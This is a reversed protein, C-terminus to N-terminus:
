EECWSKCVPYLCFEKGDVTYDIEGFKGNFVVEMGDLVDLHNSILKKIARPANKNFNDKSFKM